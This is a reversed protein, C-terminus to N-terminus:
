EDVPAVEASSGDNKLQLSSGEENPADPDISKKSQTNPSQGELTPSEKTPDLKEASAAPQLATGGPLVKKVTAAAVTAAMKSAGSTGSAAM